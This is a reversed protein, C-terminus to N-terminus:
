HASSEKKMWSHHGFEPLVVVKIDLFADPIEATM